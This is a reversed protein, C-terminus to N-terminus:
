KIPNSEINLTLAGKLVLINTGNRVEIAGKLDEINLKWKAFKNNM